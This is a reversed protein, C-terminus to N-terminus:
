KFKIKEVKSAFDNSDIDVVQINFLIEEGNNDSNIIKDIESYNIKIMKIKTTSYNINLTIDKDEEIKYSKNYKYNYEKLYDSVKIKCNAESSDVEEITCSKLLDKIFAIDYYTMNYEKQYNVSDTEFLSGEKLYYTKNNYLMYGEQDLVNDKGEFLVVSADRSYYLESLVNNETKQVRLSYNDKINGFLEVITAKKTDETNTDNPKKDGSLTNGFKLFIIAFIFILGFIMIQNNLKSKKEEESLERKTFIEKLM